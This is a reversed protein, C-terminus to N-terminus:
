KFCYKVSKCDAFKFTEPQLEVTPRKAGPAKVKVPVEITFADDGVEALTGRLKRGDTTLVEVDNGINKVYQGKVKFPATIGASGVELSYDEVERDFVAEIRRTIDVCQDIDIGDASDIEVVIDNAPSITVDVLFIGTGEIADKVTNTLLEKDIM